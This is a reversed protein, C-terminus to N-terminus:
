DKKLEINGMGHFNEFVLEENEEDFMLEIIPSCNGYGVSGDYSEDLKCLDNLLYIEGVHDLVIYNGKANGGSGRCISYKYDYTGDEKLDITVYDKCTEVPEEVTRSLSYEYKGSYKEYFKSVDVKNDNNEEENGEVNNDEKNNNLIEKKDEVDIVKDYIIYGGLGVVLLSLIVVLVILGKNDKEM